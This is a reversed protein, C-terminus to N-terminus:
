APLLDPPLKTVEAMREWYKRRDSDIDYRLVNPCFDHLISLHPKAISEYEPPVRVLAYGATRGDLARPAQHLAIAKVSVEKIKAQAARPTTQYDVVQTLHYIGNKFIFDAQLDEEGPLSYSTLVKHESLEDAEHGLLNFRQFERKIETFLRSKGEMSSPRRPPTVLWRMTQEVKAEYTDNTALFFGLASCTFPAFDRLLVVAQEPPVDKCVDAIDAQLVGTMKFSLNPSLAQAKTLQRTVRVDVRGDVFIVLGVNVVEGRVPDPRYRLVCYKYSRAM